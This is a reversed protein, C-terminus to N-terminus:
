RVTTSETLRFQGLLGLGFRRTRTGRGTLMFGAKEVARISATNDAGVVYWCTRNRYRPARVIKELAITALGRGRLTPDTWTDGVQIDEKKMFPFRIYGPTIVSRHVVRGDLRIVLLGYERNSFLHSIHFLWWVAFPLFSVGKPKLRFAGPTWMECTCGAPLARFLRNLSGTSRYFLCGNEQM